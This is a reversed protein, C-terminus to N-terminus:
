RCDRELSWELSEVMSISYLVKWKGERDRESGRMGMLCHGRLLDGVVVVSDVGSGVTCGHSTGVCGLLDAKM